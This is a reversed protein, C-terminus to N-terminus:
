EERAKQAHQLTEAQATLQQQLETARQQAAAKEMAAADREGTLTTIQAELANIRAAQEACSKEAQELEQAFAQQCSELQNFLEEIAALEDAPKVSTALHEEPNSHTAGPQEQSLESM